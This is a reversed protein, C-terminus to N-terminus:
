IFLDKQKEAEAIRKCAIDFYKEDLEIGIFRRGMQHCAVGTSGSGMFPDCITSGQVNTIIKRMVTIPKVTPHAYENKITSTTVYRGMEELRGVPHSDRNWAHIYFETDPKYHKNAVPIPNTKHWSCLAYRFYKEAFFPILDKLQDNHCFCVISQTEILNFINLDFGDSLGSEIVRDMCDPNERKFLRGGQADFDYPPDTVICDIGDLTPLIDLCDGLYIECNGIIEKRM